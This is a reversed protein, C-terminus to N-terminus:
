TYKILILYTKIVFMLVLLGDDSIALILLGDLIFVLDSTLDLSLDFTAGFHIRLGIGETAGLSLTWLHFRIM